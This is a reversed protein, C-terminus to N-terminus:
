GGFLYLYCGKWQPTQPQANFGDGEVLACSALLRASDKFPFASENIDEPDSPESALKWVRPLM